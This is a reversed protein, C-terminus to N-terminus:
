ESTFGVRHLLQPFRSDRRLPDVAGDVKLWALYSDREYAARDLWSFANDRQGLAAYITAFFYPPVYTRSSIGGLQALIKLADSKKGALAYARGLGVLRSPDDSSLNSAKLSDSIAQANKGVALYGTGLCDYAGVSNPDLELVKQCQAIAQDYHRTYYFVYGATIQTWISLPDLQQAQRSEGLAETDRGMAALFYSYNRHAEADSPSLELARKFEKEAAPWDWDAYFHILALEVHADALAPDLDLAKQAYRRADPMSASPPVDTRSWYYEALGAYAPAYNPDISIAQEFYKRAKRQQESTGKNLYSGELYAQHAAPNVPRASALRSQEDPTLTVKVESAIARAVDEQLGLIDKLNRDYSQAWLLKDTSADILQATIRVRDGSRMVSGEVVADVHLTQAIERASQHSNAYQTVSTRSIVHLASIQALQTTLEETMGEAFYEQQPDGSLNELPLVALSQISHSPPPPASRSRWDRLGLGFAIAAVFVIAAVIVINRKGFSKKPPVAALPIPASTQAQLRRLDVELEKASQYRNEPEKELCKLIIRELEASLKPNLVRPPVPYDRLIADILLSPIREECARRGTSMEYLVAGFSFIDSRSDAPKGMLQEPSMYPLTGIVGRSATASQTSEDDGAVRLLRAIGFDLVKARGKPTILINGPKLDRHVIGLDQAEELAQAIQSALKLLEKEPLPGAELVQALSTGEVCEMVVFDTGDQTDFEHITAVNPHNLKALLLAEHRFRRRAKEDKLLGFPLVKLAVDRDLREDRARYVEGMGGVGIKEIIRYHGLTQGIM